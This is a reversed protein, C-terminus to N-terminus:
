PICKDLPQHMGDMCEVSHDIEEVVARESKLNSSLTESCQRLSEQGM